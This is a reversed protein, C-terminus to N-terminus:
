RGCTTRYDLGPAYQEWEVPTVDGVVLRCVQDRVDAFGRWFIGTWLRVVGDQDLTALTRGDPSFALESVFGTPLPRGVLRRTPVNWLRVTEDTAAALTRGDPSFAALGAGVVSGRGPPRLGGGVQRRTGVDWLRIADGELAALTRGDPSFVMGLVVHDGDLPPDLPRRSPVDWLRAGDFDLIALTRGDNSLAIETVEEPPLARGAPRRTEVDWLRVRGANASSVLTRGDPTFALGAIWREHARWAAGLPRRSAVDWLRV